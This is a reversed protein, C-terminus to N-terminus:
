TLNTVPGAILGDRVGRATVGGGFGAACALSRRIPREDAQGSVQLRTPMPRRTNVNPPVAQWRHCLVNLVASVLGSAGLTHGLAAKHSYLATGAGGNPLGAALASLEAADNLETATGHGHVLDFPPGGLSTVLRRLIRGDRDIGTLHSADAATAFRGLKLLPSLAAAPRELCIAAAAESMLFGNRDVDYPRCLEGRPPLVGLRDFSAVFMPHVSAEGAVILM